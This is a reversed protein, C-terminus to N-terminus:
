LPERYDWDDGNRQVSWGFSEWRGICPGANRHTLLKVTRRSDRARLGTTVLAIAAAGDGNEPYCCDYRLMDAPFPGCGEVTFVRPIINFAPM